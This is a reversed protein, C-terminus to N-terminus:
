VKTNQSLEEKLFGAGPRRIDKIIIRPDDDLIKIGESVDVNYAASSKLYGIPRFYIKLRETEREVLLSQFFNSAAAFTSAMILLMSLLVIARRRFFSKIFISQM